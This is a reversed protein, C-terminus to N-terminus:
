AVRITVTPKRLPYLSYLYYRCADSHHTREKDRKDLERTGALFSTRELDSITNKCRPHVLFNRAGTSNKLRANVASVSETILPHHRGAKLEVAPLNAVDLLEKIIQYDTKTANTSRSYGSADGHVQVGGEHSGYRNLFENATVETSATRVHLEDICVDIVRGDTFRFQQIVQWCMPDVNFDACLNIPLDKNYDWEDTVSETRDFNWYAQGAFIDLFKGLAEQAYYREDYLTKLRDIYEALLSINQETSAHYIKVKNEDKKIVLEDYLWNLGDPTTTVLGCPEKAGPNSQRGMIIKFATSDPLQGAEDIWFHSFETGRLREPNDMSRFLIRTDGFLTISNESARYNYSLGKENLVNIFMARTSDELMRYTPGFIAAQMGRNRWCLDGFKEAGCRTKGSRIGGIFAYLYIDQGSIKLNSPLDFMFDRQYAHPWFGKTMPWGHEEDEGPIGQAERCVARLEQAAAMAVRAAEGATSYCFPKASMADFSDAATKLIHECLRRGIELSYVYHRDTKPIKELEARINSKENIAKIQFAKRFKVTFPRCPIGDVELKKDVMTRMPLRHLDAFERLLLDQDSRLWEELLAAWNYKSFTKQGPARRKMRSHGRTVGQVTGSSRKRGVDARRCGM